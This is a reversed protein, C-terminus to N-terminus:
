ACAQILFGWTGTGACVPLCSKEPSFKAVLFGPQPTKTAVIVMKGEFYKFKQQESSQRQQNISTIVASKYLYDASM